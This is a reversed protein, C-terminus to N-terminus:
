QGFCDEQIVLRPLTVRSPDVEALRRLGLLLAFLGRGARGPPRQGGAAALAHGPLDPRVPRGRSGPLAGCHRHVIAIMTLLLPNVTLEYLGPAADLRRLLDDAAAEARLLLDRGTAGTSHWEVVLYWGQVFRTVQEDTFSRVQLV